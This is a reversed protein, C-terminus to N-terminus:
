WVDFFDVQRFRMGPLSVIQFALCSVKPIQNILEAGGSFSWVVFLDMAPFGPV